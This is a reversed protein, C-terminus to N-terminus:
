AGELFRLVAAADFYFMQARAIRHDRIRYLGLVECDLTTGLPSRGRQHWLVVVEDDSVAVVRPSLAREAGTPQFPDWTETWTPRGHRDGSSRFTGGYPLQDPWHFEVDPHWLEDDHSEDREEISRFAALVLGVNAHAVV